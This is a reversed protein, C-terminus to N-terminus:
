LTSQNIPQNTSQKSSPDPTEGFLEEMTPPFELPPSDLSTREEYGTGDERVGRGRPTEKAKRRLHNIYSNLQPGLEDLLPALQKVAEPGILGRRHARRLWHRVEMLSGRAIHCHRAREKWSDRGWGEAINAGISDAARVLQSGLTDRAFRDWTKVLDWLGDSLAESSRYIDLQTFSAIGM